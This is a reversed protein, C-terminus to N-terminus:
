KIDSIIHTIFKLNFASQPQKLGVEQADANGPDEELMQEVAQLQDRLEAVADRMEMIAANDEMSM